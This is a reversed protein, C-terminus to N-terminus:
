ITVRVRNTNETQELASEINGSNGNDLEGPSNHSRKEPMADTFVRSKRNGPELLVAVFLNTEGKWDPRPAVVVRRAICSSCVALSLMAPLAPPTQTATSEAEVWQRLVSPLAETPFTPPPPVELPDIEKWPEESPTWVPTDKALQVLQEKTGGAAVWDSVDGKEPLDPLEVVQVSQAVGHLSQAVQRAHERGPDDNDPIVIVTRGRLFESHEDSWKGAGGANCTALIGISALSQVDKEGEVVVVPRKPEAVLQPLMYPVVRVGKVSPVWGKGGPKPRRQSFSKPEYRVVQFLLDGKENRYNYKAVIRSKSNKSPRRAAPRGDRPPMLDAVRLGVAQCVEEISCGAHCHALARGGEGESVVLSAQRDEHAPCRASWGEGSQRVDDLKSLLTETPTMSM